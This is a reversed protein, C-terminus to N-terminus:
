KVTVEEFKNLHIRGQTYVFKALFSKSEESTRSGNIYTSLHGNVMVTMDRESAVLGSIAFQTSANLSKLRDAELKQRTEYEGQKPELVYQKLLNAKWEISAPAVDLLLYSVFAAMQELYSASVADHSVWFTKEIVPPVLVIQQRGTLNYVVLLSIVVAGVLGFISYRQIAVTSRLQKLDTSVATPNM